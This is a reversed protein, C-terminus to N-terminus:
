GRQNIAESHRPDPCSFKIVSGTLKKIGHLLIHAPYKPTSTRGQENVSGQTFCVLSLFFAQANSEKPVRWRRGAPFKVTNWPMPNWFIHLRYVWHWSFIFDKSSRVNGNKGGRRHNSWNGTACVLFLGNPKSLGFLCIVSQRPCTKRILKGGYKQHDFCKRGCKACKVEPHWGFHHFLIFM